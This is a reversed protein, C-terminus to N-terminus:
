KLTLGVLILSVIGLLWNSHPFRARTGLLAILSIIYRKSRVLLRLNVKYIYAKELGEYFPLALFISIVNQPLFNPQHSITAQWSRLSCRNASRSAKVFYQHFEKIMIILFIIILFFHLSSLFFWFEGRYGAHQEEAFLLERCDPETCSSIECNLRHGHPVKAKSVYPMLGRGVKAMMSIWPVASERVGVKGKWRLAFSSAPFM